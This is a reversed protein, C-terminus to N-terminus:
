LNGASPVIIKLALLERVVQSLPLGVVNSYSGEIREVLVGGKGQIGYAGAKDLPESTAVYSKLIQQTSELFFVTTKVSRCVTMKEMERYICFGTWVEHRKGSLQTLMEFAHVPSRPKG